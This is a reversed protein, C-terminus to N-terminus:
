VKTKKKVGTRDADCTSEHIKPGSVTPTTIDHKRRKKHGYSRRRVDKREDKKKHRVTRRRTYDNTKKTGTRLDADYVNTRKQANGPRRRMHYTTEKTGTSDADSHSEDKKTGTRDADCTM